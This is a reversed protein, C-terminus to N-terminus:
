NSSEELSLKLLSYYNCLVYWKEGRQIGMGINLFTPKFSRGRTFSPSLYYKTFFLPLVITAPIISAPIKKLTLVLFKM